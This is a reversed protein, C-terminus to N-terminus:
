PELHTTGQGYSLPPHNLAQEKRFATPSLQYTEKFLQNFYSTNDIGVMKGIFNVKLATTALMKKATEM